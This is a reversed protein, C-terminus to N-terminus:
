ILRRNCILFLGTNRDAQFHNGTQLIQFTDLLRGQMARFTRVSIDYVTIRKLFGSKRSKSSRHIVRITHQIGIVIRLNSQIRYGIIIFNEAVRESVFCRCEKIIIGVQGLHRSFCNLGFSIFSFAFLGHLFQFFTGFRIRFHSCIFNLFTCFDRFLLHKCLLIFNERSRHNLQQFKCVGVIRCLIHFGEKQPIHRINHIVVTKGTGIHIHATHM